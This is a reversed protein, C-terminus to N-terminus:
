FEWREPLPMILHKHLREPDFYEWEPMVDDQTDPSDHRECRQELWSHVALEDMHTVDYITIIGDRSVLERTSGMRYPVSM